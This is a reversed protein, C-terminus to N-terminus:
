AGSHADASPVWFRKLRETLADDSDEFLHGYHDAHFEGLRSCVPTAATAADRV